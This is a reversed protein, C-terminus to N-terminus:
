CGREREYLRDKGGVFDDRGNEGLIGRSWGKLWNLGLWPGEGQKRSACVLTVANVIVSEKYSLSLFDTYQLYQLGHGGDEGM